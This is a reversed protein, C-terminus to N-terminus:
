QLPAPVDTSWTPGNTLTGTNGNGSQDATTTGTGEELPWYGALDTRNDGGAYLAAVESSSLARSYLRVDDIQNTFLEGLGNNAALIVTDGTYDVLSPSGSGAAIGNVYLTILSGLRTIAGHCWTGAALYSSGVVDANYGNFSFVTTDSVWMCRRKGTAEQGWSIVMKHAPAASPKLWASMTWDNHLGNAANPISVYDNSGDFSLSYSSLPAAAGLGAQVVRISGGFSPMVLGAGGIPTTLIVLRGLVFFVV